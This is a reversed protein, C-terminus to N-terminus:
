AAVRHAAPEEPRDTRADFTLGEEEVVEPYREFALEAIKWGNAAKVNGGFMRSAGRLEQLGGEPRRLGRLGGLLAKGTVGGCRGYSPVEVGIVGRGSHGALGAMARSGAMDLLYSGALELGPTACNKVRCGESWYLKYIKTAGTM